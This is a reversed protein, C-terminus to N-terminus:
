KQNYSPEGWTHTFTIGIRRALWLPIHLTEGEIRVQSKPLWRADEGGFDILFAKETERVVPNIKFTVNKSTANM